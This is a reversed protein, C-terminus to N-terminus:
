PKLLGPHWADAEGSWLIRLPKGPEQKWLLMKDPGGAPDYSLYVDEMDRAKAVANEPTLMPEAPELEAAIAGVAGFGLFTLFGRRNM